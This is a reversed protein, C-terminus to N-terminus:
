TLLCDEAQREVMVTGLATIVAEIEGATLEPFMPLSLFEQACQEAVPFSGPGYGLGAYAKQLHVPIPYHIGTGIGAQTLRQLVFDRRATRLAYVHFIHTGYSAVKPVVMGDFGALAESYAAAHARRADNARDLGKLKVSLAAAQIGDM